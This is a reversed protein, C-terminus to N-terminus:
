RAPHARRLPGQAPLLQFRHPGAWLTPAHGRRGGHRQDSAVGLQPASSSTRSPSHAPADGASTTVPSGPMPLVRRSSSSALRARSRSPGPARRARRPTRPRGAARRRPRRARPAGRRAAPPASPWGLAGGGARRWACSSAASAASAGSRRRGPRGASPRGPTRRREDAASSRRRRGGLHQERERVARPLRGLPQPTRDRARSRSRRLSRGPARAASARRRSPARPRRCGPGCAALQQEELAAAVREVELVQGPAGARARSPRCRRCPARRRAGGDGGRQRSSSRASDGSARSSRSAAATTPTSKSGSVTAATASTSSAAARSASSASAAGRGRAGPRAGRRKVIRWGSTRRAM